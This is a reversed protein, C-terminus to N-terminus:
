LSLEASEAINLALVDSELISAKVIFEVPKGCQGILEDM